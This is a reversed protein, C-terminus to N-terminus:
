ESPALNAYSITFAEVNVGVEGIKQSSPEDSGLFGHIEVFGPPVGIFGGLGSEDTVKATSSIVGNQSYLETVLNQHKDITLAIDPAPAGTCDLSTTFVIGTSPNFNGGAAEALSQAAATPVLPLPIPTTIDAKVPPNFFLLAPVFTAFLCDPDDPDTPDCSPGLLGCLLPGVAGFVSTDSCSAKPPTIRMYGDFGVGLVGGTPVAFEMAGNIEKISAQIPNTCGLDLKGCLSVTFGSVPEACKPSVFNCAQVRVLAADGQSTEPAAPEGLCGWPGEDGETVLKPDDPIDLVQKCGALSLVAVVSLTRAFRYDVSRM